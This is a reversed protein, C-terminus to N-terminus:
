QIRMKHKRNRSSLLKILNYCEEDLSSRFYLDAIRFCIVKIQIEQCLLSTSNADPARFLNVPDLTPPHFRSHGRAHSQQRRCWTVTAISVVPICQPTRLVVRYRIIYCKAKFQKSQCDGFTEQPKM